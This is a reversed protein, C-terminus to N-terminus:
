EWSPPAPLGARSEALDDAFAAAEEPTLRPLRTWHEALEAATLDHRAPARPGALYAAVAERVLHSRALGSERARRAIGRVLAEPLRLSLHADKM